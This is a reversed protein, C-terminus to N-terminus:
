MSRTLETSVINPIYKRMSDIVTCGLETAEIGSYKQSTIIYNRKFLTSLASFTQEPLKQEMIEMKELISAQNFRFPPQTFKEKIIM